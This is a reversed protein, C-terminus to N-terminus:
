MTDMFDTSRTDLAHHKFCKVFTWYNLEKVGYLVLKDNENAPLLQPVIKGTKLVKECNIM